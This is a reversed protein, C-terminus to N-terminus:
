LSNQGPSSLLFWKFASFYFFTFDFNLEFAANEFAKSEFVTTQGDFQECPDTNRNQANKAYRRQKNL